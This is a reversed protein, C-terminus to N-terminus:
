YKRRTRKNAKVAKGRNDIHNLTTRTTNTRRDEFDLISSPSIKWRPVRSGKRSVDVAVLENQSIWERVKDVSVGLQEAYQEPTLFTGTAKITM